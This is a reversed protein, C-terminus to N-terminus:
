LPLPAITLNRARSPFHAGCGPCKRSHIWSGPWLRRAALPRATSASAVGIFARFGARVRTTVECFWTVFLTWLTDAAIYVTSEIPPGSPTRVRSRM